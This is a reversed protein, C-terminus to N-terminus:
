PERSPNFAIEVVRTQATEFLLKSQLGDGQLARPLWERTNGIPLEKFVDVVLTRGARPSLDSLQAPHFLAPRGTYVGVLQGDGKRIV